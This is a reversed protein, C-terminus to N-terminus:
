LEEKLLELRDFLKIMTGISQFLDEDTVGNFITDMSEKDKLERPNWFENAKDLFMVRTIRSDTEDKFLKIFGNKQLKLLVQKVNQRSTGFRDSLEGIRPPIEFSGLIIMMFFQKTTIQDEKLIKDMYTQLTNSTQFLRVIMERQLNMRDM